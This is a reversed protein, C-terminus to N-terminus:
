CNLVLNSNAPSQDSPSHGAVSVTSLVKGGPQVPQQSFWAPCWLPVSFRRWWAPRSSQSHTCCCPALVVAVPQSLGQQSVKLPEPHLSYSIEQCDKWLTHCFNLDWRDWGQHVPWGTVRDLFVVSGVTSRHISDALLLSLGFVRIHIQLM